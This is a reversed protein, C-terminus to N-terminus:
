TILTAPASTRGIPSRAESARAACVQGCGRPTVIGLMAMNSLGCGKRLGIFVYPNGAERPLAKLIELARDSLPVRHERGAKMREAPITWIKEDIEDWRAGIIEGTRAACLISVRPRAAVRGLAGATRWHVASRDTFPLAAHHKVNRAASVTPRPMGGAVWAVVREVRQKTRKGTEPTDKWVDALADNILAADVAKVPRSALKPYAYTTLTNRWQQRHKANRWTGEYLDLYRTAAEKFTINEREDKAERDHKAKRAEIPDIGDLLLLRAKRARERAGDVKEGDVKECNLRLTNLSGLGM